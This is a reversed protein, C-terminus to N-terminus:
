KQKRKDFYRHYLAECLVALACAAVLGVIERTSM